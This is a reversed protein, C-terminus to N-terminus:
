SASIKKKFPRDDNFQLVLHKDTYSVIFFSCKSSGVEDALAAELVSKVCETKTVESIIELIRFAVYRRTDAHLHFDDCPSRLIYSQLRSELEALGSLEQIKAVSVDAFPKFLQELSTRIQEIGPDSNMLRASASFDRIRGDVTAMGGLFGDLRAIELLSIQTTMATV